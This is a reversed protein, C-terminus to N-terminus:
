NRMLKKLHRRTMNKTTDEKTVRKWMGELRHEAKHNVNIKQNWSQQFPLCGLFLHCAVQLIELLCVHFSFPFEQHFAKWACTIYGNRIQILFKKSIKRSPNPRIKHRPVIIPYQKDTWIQTLKNYKWLMDASLTTTCYSSTVIFYLPFSKAPFRYYQYKFSNNLFFISFIQEIVHIESELFNIFKLVQNFYKSLQRFDM